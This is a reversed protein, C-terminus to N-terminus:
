ILFGIFIIVLNWWFLATELAVLILIMVTRGIFKMSIRFSNRLIVPIVNVYRANLPFAYIFSFTFIFTSIIGFILLVISADPIKNFIEFDLYIVYICLLFILGLVTGQKINARYAKFFQRAIYGEEEDVMKLAVDFLATLSAGVTVIPISGIVFCMSLIFVNTLATMFKYLPGDINFLKM